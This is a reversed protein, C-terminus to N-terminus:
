ELHIREDFRALAKQLVPHKKLTQDKTLTEEAAERALTVLKMNTMNEMAVDPLGSQRTGLFSGPGREALDAEAIAFGNRHEVLAELRKPSKTFSGPILFCYSQAEGRGVRGRFQHLQSLGFRDAEEILIVTANPIDIGVEIVSTAVLIDFQKEKFQEMAKEKEQPKLKGHIIAVKAGPFVEEALRAHESVAAKVDKLALSEEVLPFIIFAQHGKEIESKIHNYIATRDAENKALKTIIPKRNKPAEELLSVDLNGFFALSLTRPIPTASLSLFHPITAPTSDLGKASLSQLKARQAVGFRHQEDVIVLSLNHYVVTDQLTAHTGVIIDPIGAALAKLFSVRSVTSDHLLRYNRTFLSVEFSSKEFLKKLSEYHQRALVETPALLVAQTQNSAALLLAFAAVVTKGSGVDGNLLRNMPTGKGLDEQIAKLAKEQGSTLSFPLNALFTQAADKHIPLPLASKSEHLQKTLLAKTQVLFMEQFALRKKALEVHKLTKPFHLYYFTHKLDPLKLSTLISEPIPDPFDALREFINKIQWRLYKSTIGRTEPYIPILRGTHNAKKESLEFSPNQIVLGVKDNQVKGSVRYVNQPRISQAVFKQNFWVLRISGSADTLTAETVLMKKQWSRNSAVKDLTGVLSVLTGPQVDAIRSIQSYDEYRNPIHYLIDEVTLLDLRALALEANKKILPIASLKTELNMCGTYRKCSLTDFNLPGLECCPALRARLDELMKWLSPAELIISYRVRRM